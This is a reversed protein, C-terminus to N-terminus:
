SNNAELHDRIAVIALVKPMVYHPNCISNPYSPVIGELHTSMHVSWEQMLLRIKGAM